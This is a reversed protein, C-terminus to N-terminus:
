TPAPDQCGLGKGEDLVGLLIHEPELASSGLQSVESRAYFLVRLARTTFRNFMLTELYITRSIFSGSLSHQCKDLAIPVVDMALSSRSARNANRNNLLAGANVLRATTASARPMEEVVAM